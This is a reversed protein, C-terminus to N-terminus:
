ETVHGRLLHGVQVAEEETTSVHFSVRLRGAREAAAVHNEALLRPVEPDASLARVARGTAPLDAAEAFAAEAAVAHRGLAPAGVRELFGLSSATGIWAHWGPSIDLRRADPALRLPSGYISAWPEDGAYWGAAAPVLGDLLDPRVTLFATGRPSLLWKYTGCVTYGFRSADLDLWGAAQTLDVLAEIGHRRCAAEVAALPAVSGDSSQVAALAVLATTGDVHEAIERLPAEVVRVGRGSQALFPFTVSTFEGQPVLVTGGDPVTAAVLAVLPSVQSGIAVTSAPVHVFRAFTARAGAIVRDYSPPDATGRRWEDLAVDLAALTDRPPLGFTATDLYPGDAEFEAAWPWDSSM